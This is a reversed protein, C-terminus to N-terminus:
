SEVRSKRSEGWRRRLARRVEALLGQAAQAEELAVPGPGYRAEVFSHTLARVPALAGPVGDGEWSQEVARLYELPTDADRRHHGHHRLLRCLRLYADIIMERADAETEVARRGEIRIWGRLLAVVVLVPMLLLVVLSIAAAPSRRWLAAFQAARYRVWASGTPSSEEAPTPDVTIWGGASPVYAEVWAHADKEKLVYHGPTAGEAPSPFAYGTVLRTPIGVARAMIALSSAFLDCYGIKQTFVFYTVADQGRPTAPANTNYYCNKHLYATLLALQQRPDREKGAVQQALEAVRQAELPVTLYEPAAEPIDGGATRRPDLSVSEIRYTAGRKLLQGPSEVIGYGNAVLRVFDHGTLSTRVTFSRLEGPAYLILPQDVEATVEHAMAPGAGGTVLEELTTSEGEGVRGFEARVEALRSQAWAGGLYQDYIDGRWYPAYDGSFSLIPLESLSIPGRGIPYVAPAKSFDTVGMSRTGPSALGMIIQWRHADAMRVMPAYLLQALVMVAAISAGLAGWHRSRWGLSSPRRRAFLAGRTGPAVLEEGSFIMAYGVALLALPLFVTFGLRASAEDGGGASLGFITVAPVLSFAVVEVRVLAFSIAVLPISMHLALVLGPEGMTSGINAQVLLAWYGGAALAGLVCVAVMSGARLRRVWWSVAAGAMALEAGRFAVDEMRGAICASYIVAALAGGSALHFVIEDWQRQRGTGRWAGVM